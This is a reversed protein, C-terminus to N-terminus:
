GHSGPTCNKWVVLVLWWTCPIKVSPRELARKVIRRDLSLTQSRGDSQNAITTIGHSVRDSMWEIRFRTWPLCDCGDFTKWFEVFRGTFILIICMEHMLKSTVGNWCTSMICGKRILSRPPRKTTIGATGLGLWSGARNQGLATRLCSTSTLLQGLEQVGQFHM